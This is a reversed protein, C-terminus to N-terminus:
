NITIEKFRLEIEDLEFSCCIRHNEEDLIRYHQSLINQQIKYGNLERLERWWVRGGLTKPLITDYHTFAVTKIVENVDEGFTMQIIESHDFLTAICVAGAWTLSSRGKEIEILTKKSIGVIESMKEQSFNNEIRILKLKNNILDIFEIKDM